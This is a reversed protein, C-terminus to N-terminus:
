LFLALTTFLWICIFGFSSINNVPLLHKLALTKSRRTVFISLWRHMFKLAREAATEVRELEYHRSLHIIGM